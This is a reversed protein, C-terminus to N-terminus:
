EADRIRDAIIARWDQGPPMANGPEDEPAPEVAHDGAAPENEAPSTRALGIVKYGGPDVTLGYM